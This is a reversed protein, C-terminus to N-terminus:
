ANNLTRIIRRKVPGIFSKLQDEVMRKVDDQTQGSDVMGFARRSITTAGDALLKLHASNIPDIVGKKVITRKVLEGEVQANKLRAAHIDEMKKTSDLYDRFNTYTGFKLIIKKLTWDLYMRIDDDVLDLVGGDTSESEAPIVRKKRPKPPKEVLAPKKIKPEPTKEDREMLPLGPVDIGRKHLFDVCQPHHIDIRAYRGEGQVSLHLNERKINASITVQSLGTLKAFETKSIIFFKEDM